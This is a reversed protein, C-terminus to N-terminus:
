KQTQCGTEFLQDNIRYASHFLLCKGECAELSWVFVMSQFTNVFSSVVQNYKSHSHCHTLIKTIKDIDAKQDLEEGSEKNLGSWTRHSGAMQIYQLIRIQFLDANVTNIRLWLFFMCSLRGASINNIMYFLYGWDTIHQLLLTDFVQCDQCKLGLQKSLHKMMEWSSHSKTRALKEPQKGPLSRHLTTAINCKVQPRHEYVSRERRRKTIPHSFKSKLFHRCPTHVGANKATRNQEHVLERYILFM